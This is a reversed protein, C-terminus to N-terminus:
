EGEVLVATHGDPSADSIGYKHHGRSPYLTSKAAWPARASLEADVLECGNEAEEDTLYVVRTGNVTTIKM